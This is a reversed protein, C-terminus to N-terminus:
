TLLQKLVPLSGFSKLGDHASFFLALFLGYGGSDQVGGLIHLVFMDVGNDM